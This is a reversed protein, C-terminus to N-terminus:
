IELYSQLAELREKLLNIHKSDRGYINNITYGKEELCDCVSTIDGQNLRLILRYNDDYKDEFCFLSQIKSQNQESIRSVETPSYNNKSVKASIISLKQNSSTIKSLENIINKQSISGIYDNQQSIIPVIDVEFASFINLVEFITQNENCCVMPLFIKSDKIKKSYDLQALIDDEKIIGYYKGLCDVVPLYMLKDEQMCKLAFELTDELHLISISNDIQNKLMMYLFIKHLYLM